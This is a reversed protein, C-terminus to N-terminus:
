FQVDETTEQLMERMQVVHSEATNNVPQDDSAKSQGLLQINGVVISIASRTNGDKDIWPNSRPKGKIFVQSGKQLLEAVKTFKGFFVLQHWEVRTQWEDNKKFSENTALTATVFPQGDKSTISKPDAGLNGILQIRNLSATM